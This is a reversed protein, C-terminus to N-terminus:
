DKPAHQVVIGAALRVGERGWVSRCPIIQVDLDSILAPTCIYVRVHFVKALLNPKLTEIVTHRLERVPTDTAIEFGTIIDLYPWTTGLGQWEIASGRPLEDIQVAFFGPIDHPGQELQGDFDPLPVNEPSKETYSRMNGCARDWVDTEEVLELENHQVEWIRRSHMSKWAKWAILAQVAPDCEGAVFAVAIAWRGVSMAKGIRWLHQLSLLTQKSLLEWVGDTEDQQLFGMSAPLLPIQGAVFVLSACPDQGPSVSIAQSYPGINAPAWYSRSQVHLGKRNTASGRSLIFSVMVKVHPPLVNGCAITVRAPPNPLSFLQGYVENVAVFDSMSSLIITSFVISEAVPNGDPVKEQLLKAIIKIMQERATSEPDASTINSFASLQWGDILVQRSAWQIGAKKPGLAVTQTNPAQQQGIKAFLRMFSGDWIDPSLLGTSWQISQKSSDRDKWILVGAGKKFGLFAEGGGGRVVWREHSQVEIRAKFIEQPGDIVITEYEGGEGLISGGFRAIGRKMKARVSPDLLNCWLFEADLGGSAVKVIRVDFGFAAMDDLLRGPFPPPLLPYQWLYSLPILGLRTAVSEIRTRQYTSLIAGSCVANAAPFDKKISRLLPILIETEDTEVDSAKDQSPKTTAPHDDTAKHYYITSDKAGGIIMDRYLPLDLAKGYHPVLAHGATQYMYSNLDEEDEVDDEAEPPYLNALAVITHGNAICHLLSFFSDKGGSILAIVNLREGDASMNERAMM